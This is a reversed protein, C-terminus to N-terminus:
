FNATYTIVRPKTLVTNVLSNTIINFSLHRIDDKYLPSSRDNKLLERVDEKKEACVLIFGENDPTESNVFVNFVKM